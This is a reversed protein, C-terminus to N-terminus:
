VNQVPDSSGAALFVLAAPQRGNLPLGEVQQQGVLRSLTSDTTDIISAEASVNLTETVKGLQLTVAVSATQAVTLVIGTQRYLSFGEKEVELTYPGVALAPLVFTGDSGTTTERTLQKETQTVKVQAGPVMAGSPDRVDGNLSATSVQGTAAPPLMLTVSFFAGLSVAVWTGRRLRLLSAVMDM